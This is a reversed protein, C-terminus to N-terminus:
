NAANSEIREIEFEIFKIAKRLDQILEEKSQGKTAEPNGSRWLYQIAQGLNSMFHQTVKYCEIAPHWTYYSPKTVKETDLIM